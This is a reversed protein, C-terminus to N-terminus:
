SADGGLIDSGVAREVIKSLEALGRSEEGSDFSPIVVVAPLADQGLARVEDEVGITVDETIYIVGAEGENKLRKLEEITADAGEVAVAQVGLARFPLIAQKRGIMAVTKTQLEAM